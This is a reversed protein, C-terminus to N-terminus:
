RSSFLIQGDEYIYCVSQKKKTSIEKTKNKKVQFRKRSRPKRKIHHTLPALPAFHNLILNLLLLLLQQSKVHNLIIIHPLLLYKKNYLVKKIPIKILYVTIKYM